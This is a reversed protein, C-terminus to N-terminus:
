RDRDQLSTAATQYEALIAANEAKLEALIASFEGVYGKLALNAAAMVREAESAVWFLAGLTEEVDDDSLVLDTKNKPHTIRNRIKMALQFRGWNRSSFDITMEPALKEAIRATLRISAVLSLYKTQRSIKGHESVQYSAESLAAEEAVELDSTTRAADVVHERFVWAIGDIAAFATRILDRKNAQGSVREHREIADIVDFLLIGIFSERTAEANPVDIM